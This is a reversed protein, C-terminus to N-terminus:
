RTARILAIDIFDSHQDLMECSQQRFTPATNNVTREPTVIAILARCATHM